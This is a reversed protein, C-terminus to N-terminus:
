ERREKWEQAHDHEYAEQDALETAYEPEDFPLQGIIVPPAAPLAPAMENGYYRVERKPCRDAILGHGPYGVEENVSPDWPGMYTLTIVDRIKCRGWEYNESHQDVEGRDGHHCDFCNEDEWWSAHPTGDFPCSAPPGIQIIRLESM